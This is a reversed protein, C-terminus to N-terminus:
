YPVMARIDAEATPGALWADLAAWCAAERAVVAAAAAARWGESAPDGGEIAVTAAGPVKGDSEPSRQPANRRFLGTM